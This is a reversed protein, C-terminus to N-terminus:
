ARSGSAPGAVAGPRHRSRGWVRRATTRASGVAEQCRRCWGLPDEVCDLAVGGPAFAACRFVPGVYRGGMVTSAPLSTTKRLRAPTDTM